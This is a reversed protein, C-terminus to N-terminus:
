LTSRRLLFIRVFPTILFEQEINLQSDQFLHLWERRPLFHYFGPGFALFNMLDRQHEVLVVAGGSRLVRSVERWFLLRSETTRIEHAAFLLFVADLEGDRFPLQRYDARVAPVPPAILRRARAIAPETMETADYIDITTSEGGFMERLALSSEDLGAHINAWRQPASPFLGHMWQWRYLPSVDYVFYSVALSALEWWMSIAIIIWGCVRLWQPFPLLWMAIAGITCGAAGMVYFHWNFRLIQWVGYLRPRQSPLSPTSATM